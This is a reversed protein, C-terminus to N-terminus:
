THSALLACAQSLIQAPNAAFGAPPAILGASRLQWDPPQAEAGPYLRRYPFELGSGRM